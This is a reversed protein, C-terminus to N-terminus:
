KNGKEVGPLMFYNLLNFGHVNGVAFIEELVTCICYICSNGTTIHGTIM